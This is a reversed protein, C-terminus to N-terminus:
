ITRSLLCDPEPIGLYIKSPQYRIEFYDSVKSIWAITIDCSVVSDDLLTSTLFTTKLDQEACVVHKNELCNLKM